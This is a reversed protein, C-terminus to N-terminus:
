ACSLKMSSCQTCRTYRQHDLQKLALCASSIHTHFLIQVLCRVVSNHATIYIYAHPM